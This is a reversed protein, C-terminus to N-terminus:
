RCGFALFCRYPRSASYDAVVAVMDIDFGQPKKRCFVLTPVLNSLHLNHDFPKPVVMGLRVSMELLHTLWLRIVCIIPGPNALPVVIFICSTIDFIPQQQGLKLSFACAHAAFGFSAEHKAPTRCTGSATDRTLRGKGRRKATEGQTAALGARADHRSHASLRVCACLLNPYGKQREARM